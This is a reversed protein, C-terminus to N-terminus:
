YPCRDGPVYIIQGRLETTWFAVRTAHIDGTRIPYPAGDENSHETDLCSLRELYREDAQTRTM